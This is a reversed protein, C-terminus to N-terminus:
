SKQAIVEVNCQIKVEEGVVFSGAETLLNFNLGFDKRNIKGNIEFGAKKDNFRGVGIGTHEVDLTVRRTTSLITLDGVLQYENSKTLVGKFHIKPFKESDFFLDTKLDKDRQANNTDISATDIEFQV